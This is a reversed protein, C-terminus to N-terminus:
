GVVVYLASILPLTNGREANRDVELAFNLKKGKITQCFTCM